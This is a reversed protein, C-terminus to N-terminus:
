LSACETFAASRASAQSSLFFSRDFGFARRLAVYELTLTTGFLLPDDSNVSVDVGHDIASRIPHLDLSGKWSGTLINSLPCMSIHGGFYFGEGAGAIGHAIRDPELLRLIAQHDQASTTEGSHIDVRLSLNRCADLFSRADQARALSEPGGLGVGCIFPIGTEDLADSSTCVECLAELLMQREAPESLWVSDIIFRVTTEPYLERAVRAGSLYSRLCTQLNLGARKLLRERLFCFDPPSVHVETYAIHEASRLRACEIVMEHLLAPDHILVTHDVWARIFDQFTQFPARELPTPDPVPHGSLQQKRYLAQYFQAPLAAELHVHLECKPQLFVWRAFELEATDNPGLGVWRQLESNPRIQHEWQPFCENWTMIEGTADSRLM